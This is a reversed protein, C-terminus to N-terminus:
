IELGATISETQKQKAAIRKKAEKVVDERAAIADINAEVKEGWTEETEGDPVVGIKRGTKSLHAKLAERAISRAEREVPDLRRSAGVNALTFAYESDYKAVEAHIANILSKDGKDQAELAAEVAKRMNNGINESRTQNLAKAEAATCVHGEDYPQSITFELGAITKTKADAM